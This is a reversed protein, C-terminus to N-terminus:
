CKKDLSWDIFLAILADYQQWTVGELTLYQEAAPSNEQCNLLSATMPTFCPHRREDVKNLMNRSKIIFYSFDTWVLKAKVSCREQSMLYASSVVSIDTM